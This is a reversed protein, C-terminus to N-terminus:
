YWYYHSFISLVGGTESYLVRSEMFSPALFQHQVLTSCVVLRFTSNMYEGKTDLHIKYSFIGVSFTFNYDTNQGFTKLKLFALFMKKKMWDEVFLFCM